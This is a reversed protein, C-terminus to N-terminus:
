SVNGSIGETIQQSAFEAYNNTLRDILVYVMANFNRSYWKRNSVVTGKSLKSSSIAWALRRVQIDETPIKRKAESGPINKFSALGKKRIFEEMVEIPPRRKYTASKMDVNRGYEEFSAVLQNVIEGTGNM